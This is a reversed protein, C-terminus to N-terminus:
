DNIAEREPEWNRENRVIPAIANAFEQAVEPRMYPSSYYISGYNVAFASGNDYSIEEHEEYQDALANIKEVAPETLIYHDPGGDDLPMDFRVDAWARTDVMNVHLSPQEGTYCNDGYAAKEEGDEFLPVDDSM